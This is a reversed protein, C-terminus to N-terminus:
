GGDSASKRKSLRLFLVERWGKEFHQTRFVMLSQWFIKIVFKTALKQTKTKFMVFTTILQRTSERSQNQGHRQLWILMWVNTWSQAQDQSTTVRCTCKLHFVTSQTMSLSKWKRKYIKVKEKRLCCLHRSASSPQKKNNQKIDKTETFRRCKVCYIQNM